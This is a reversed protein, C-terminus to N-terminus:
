VVTSTNTRTRTSLYLLSGLLERYPVKIMEYKETQPIQLTEDYLPHSLNIATPNTNGM